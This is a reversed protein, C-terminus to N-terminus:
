AIGPEEGVGFRERPHVLRGLLRFGGEERRLAREVVLTLLADKPVELQRPVSHAYKKALQLACLSAALTVRLRKRRRCAAPAGRRRGSRGLQVRPGGHHLSPPSSGVRGADTAAKTPKATAHLEDTPDIRGAASATV